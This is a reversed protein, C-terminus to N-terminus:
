ETAATSPNALVETGPPLRPSRVRVRAADNDSGDGASDEAGDAEGLFAVRIREGNPTLVFHEEYRNLVASAPLTVAGGTDDVRLHLETRVGGRQGLPLGDVALEVNHKRTEPDFEPNILELRAAIRQDAIDPLTLQLAEGQSRVQAFEQPSLAFPVLLTRYDGARGVMQGRMVWEGPEVGREILRWGDPVRVAFRRRREALEEAQVKLGALELRIQDRDNVVREVTSADVTESAGLRTYREAENNLYTLRNTLRDRQVRNQEIAIDIFTRDLLVYPVSEAFQGVDLNVAAVRGEEESVVNATHRARTFGTLVVVRTAAKAVVTKTDAEQAAAPWAIALLAVLLLIPLPYLHLRM